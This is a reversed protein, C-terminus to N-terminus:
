GHSILNVLLAVGGLILVLPWFIGASVGFLFAATLLTFFVGGIVSGRVANSFNNGNSQYMGVASAYSGFAPILFFLAWWNHLTFIGTNQLLFIIGLLILIGGGIWAGNTHRWARREARWERRQARWHEREEVYGVSKGNSNSNINASMNFVERRNIVKSNFYDIAVLIDAYGATPM